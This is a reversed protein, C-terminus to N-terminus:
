GFQRKAKKTEREEEAVGQNGSELQRPDFGTVKPIGRTAPQYQGTSVTFPGKKLVGLLPWICVARGIFTMLLCETM